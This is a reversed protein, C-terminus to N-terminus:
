NELLWRKESRTCVYVISDVVGRRRRASPYERAERANSKKKKSLAAYRESGEYGEVVARNNAYHKGHEYKCQKERACIGMVRRPATAVVRRVRARARELRLLLVLELVPKRGRPISSGAARRSPCLLRCQNGSIVTFTLATQKVGKGRGNKKGRRKEELYPFFKDPRTMDEAVHSRLRM